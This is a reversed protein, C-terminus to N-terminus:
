WQGFLGLLLTGLGIILGFIRLLMYDDVEYKVPGMYIPWEALYAVVVYAGYLMIALRVYNIPTSLLGDLFVSFLLAAMLVITAILRGLQKKHIM